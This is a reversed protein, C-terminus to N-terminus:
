ENIFEINKYIEKLHNIAEIKNQYAWRGDGIRYTQEIKTKNVMGFVEVVTITNNENNIYGRVTEM